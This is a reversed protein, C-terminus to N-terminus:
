QRNKKARRELAASCLLMLLFAVIIAGTGLAEIFTEVNMLYRGKDISLKGVSRPSRSEQHGM